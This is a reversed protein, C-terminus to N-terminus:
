AHLSYIFFSLVTRKTLLLLYPLLISLDVAAEVFLKRVSVTPFMNSSYSNGGAGAVVVKLPKSPRPSSRFSSSLSAAELYNM